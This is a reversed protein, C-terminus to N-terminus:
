FAFGDAAAAAAPRACARMRVTCALNAAAVFVMLSGVAIEIGFFWKEFSKTKTKAKLSANLSFAGSVLIVAGLIMVGFAVWSSGFTAVSKCVTNAISM